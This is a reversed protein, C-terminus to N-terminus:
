SYSGKLLVRCSENRDEWTYSQQLAIKEVAKAKQRVEKNILAENFCFWLVAAYVCSTRAASSSAAGSEHRSLRQAALFRGFRGSCANARALVM